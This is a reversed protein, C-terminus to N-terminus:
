YTKSYALRLIFHSVLDKEREEDLNVAASTALSNSHLPLHKDEIQKVHNRFEDDKKNRVKATEIGKLM